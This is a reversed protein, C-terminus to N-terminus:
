LASKAGFRESSIWTAATETWVHDSAVPDSALSIRMFGAENVRLPTAQSGVSSPDQFSAVSSSKVQSKPDLFLHVVELLIHINNYIHSIYLYMHNYITRIYIDILSFIIEFVHFSSSRGGGAGVRAPEAGLYQSGFPVVRSGRLRTLDVHMLWAKLQKCAM